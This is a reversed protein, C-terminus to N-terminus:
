RQCSQLRLQLKGARYAAPSFRARQGLQPEALAAM